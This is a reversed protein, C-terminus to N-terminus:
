QFLRMGPQRSDRVLVRDLLLNGEECRTEPLLGCAHCAVDSKGGGTQGFIAVHHSLAEIPVVARPDFRSLVRAAQNDASMTM